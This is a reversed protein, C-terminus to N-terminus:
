SVKRNREAARGLFEAGCGPEGEVGGAALVLGQAEGAAGRQAQDGDAIRVGGGQGLISENRRHSIIRVTANIGFPHCLIALM